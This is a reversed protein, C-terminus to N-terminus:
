GQGKKWAPFVNMDSGDVAGQHLFWQKPFMPDPIIDIFPEELSRKSERKTRKLEKQQETWIVHPHNKLTEHHIQSHTTSRKHVHPHEFLYHDKITGIPGM